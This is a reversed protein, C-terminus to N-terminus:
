KGRENLITKAWIVQDKAYALLRPDAKNMVELLLIKEDIYVKAFDLDHNLIDSTNHILDALKITQGRASISATHDRDIAKRTKRNGDTPKSVDTLESVLQAIEPGFLLDVIFINVTKGCDEVSDHLWAACVMAEDGGFDSVIKAVAAPHQIYPSGHYKRYIDNLWFHYAAYRAAKKTLETRLM